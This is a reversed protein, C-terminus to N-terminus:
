ISTLIQHGETITGLIQNTPSLGLMLVSIVLFLVVVNLVLAFITFRVAYNM